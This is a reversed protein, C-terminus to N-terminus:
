ASLAHAPASRASPSHQDTDSALMEIVDAAQIM